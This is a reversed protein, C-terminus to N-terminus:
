CYKWLLQHCPIFTGQVQFNYGSRSTYMMNSPLQRDGHRCSSKQLKRRYTSSRLHMGSLKCIILNLNPLCEIGRVPHSLMQKHRSVLLPCDTLMRTLKSFWPQTTWYPVVMIIEEVRDEEIKPLTKGILLFPHFAYAFLDSWDISFADICKAFPDPKWVVHSSVQHNLRSTYLDITPKGGGGTYLKFYVTIYNGSLIIM